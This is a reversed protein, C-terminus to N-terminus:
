PAALAETLIRGEDTLRVPIGKNERDGAHILGADRLGKLSWRATSRPLGMEDSITEILDTYLHDGRKESILLLVARQKDTLRRGSAAQLTRSLAGVEDFHLRLSEELEDVNRMLRDCGASDPNQKAFRRVEVRLDHVAQLLNKSEPSPYFGAKGGSSVSM